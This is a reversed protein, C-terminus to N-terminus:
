ITISESKICSNCNVQVTYIGTQNELVTLEDINQENHPTGDKIWTITQTPCPTNTTVKLVHNNCVTTTTPTINNGTISETSNTLVINVYNTFDPVVQFTVYPNTTLGTSCSVDEVIFLSTPIVTLVAQHNIDTVTNNYILRDTSNILVQNTSLIGVWLGNPSNKCGLTITISNSTTTVTLDYNLGSTAGYEVCLANKILNHLTTAYGLQGFYCDTDVVTTACPLSPNLYPTTTPNLNLALTTNFINDTVKLEKIYTGNVAPITHTYVVKGRRGQESVAENNFTKAISASCSSDILEVVSAYVYSDNVKTYIDLKNAENNSNFLSLSKTCSSTTNSLTIGFKVITVLTDTTCSGSTVRYRFVYSGKPLSTFDVLGGSLTPATSPYSVTSWVGGTTYNDIYSFLNVM